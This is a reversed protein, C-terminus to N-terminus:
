KSPFLLPGKYGHPLAPGLEPNLTGISSAIAVGVVGGGGERPPGPPLVPGLQHFRPSFFLLFGFYEKKERIEKM